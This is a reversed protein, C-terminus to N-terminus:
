LASAAPRRGLRRLLGIGLVAGFLLPVFWTPARGYLARNLSWSHRM